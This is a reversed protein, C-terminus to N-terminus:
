RSAPQSSEQRTAGDREELAPNEILYDGLALYDLHGVLFARVADKASCVIPEEHINFSTNIVCGMGTRRHFETLIRHFGPAQDPLVYQPRATGDVHVVGSCTDKALATCDRTITMFQAAHLVSEGREYLDDIREVPTAPAFPMFETRKLRANLWDNVSPDDPRYLISRNGLARPGYEMRGACRAVVRGSALLEAVDAAIDQRPAELLSEAALAEEIDATRLDNGLYVHAVPRGALSVARERDLELAGACAAGYALGEDGMGPHIFLSRVEPLEEILQNLRVNAFVGGAVVLDPEGSARMWHRVFATTEAELHKQISAALDERTWGKPLAEELKKLGSYYYAGARNAYAGGEVRIMERLLQQYKPEGHAALGTIKGEHKHATFGCLHTVYAYFNGISHFSTTSALSDIEGDRIRYVRSCLTDGGGDLTIATCRAKGGTLYAALAHCHHHDAFRVPANIGFESRLRDRVKSQRGLTAVKKVGYFVHEGGLPGVIPSLTSSVNYLLSKMPGPTHRFWGEWRRSVPQYYNYRDSVYVADLQAPTVGAQELVSSISLAPFGTALKERILREEDVAWTVEGDEYLAAGGCVSSDSIGLIRM